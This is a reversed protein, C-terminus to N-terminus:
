LIDSMWNALKECPFIKMHLIALENQFRIRVISLGRLGDISVLIQKKACSLRESLLLLICLCSFRDILNAYFGFECGPM